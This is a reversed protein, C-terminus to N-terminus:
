AGDPPPAPRPEALVFVLALAAFALGAVMVTGAAGMRPLALMDAMLTGGFGGLAGCALMGGLAPGRALPREDVALKLLMALAAGACLSPPLLLALSLVVPQAEPPLALAEVTRMATQPLAAAGVTTVAAAGLAAALRRLTGRLTSLPGSLWGGLWVGAALGLLVSGAEAPWRPDGSAALLWSGACAIAAVAGGGLALAVAYLGMRLGSGRVSLNDDPFGDRPM